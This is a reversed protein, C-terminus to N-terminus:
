LGETVKSLERLGGIIRLMWNKLLAGYMRVGNATPTPRAYRDMKLDQASLLEVSLMLCFLTKLDREEYELESVSRILVQTM